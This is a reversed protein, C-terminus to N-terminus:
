KADVTRGQVLAMTADEDAFKANSNSRASRPATARAEASSPADACEEENEEAVDASYPSEDKDAVVMPAEEAVARRSMYVGNTDGFIPPIPAPSKAQRNKATSSIRM